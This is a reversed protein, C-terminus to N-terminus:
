LCIVLQEHQRSMKEHGISSMQGSKLLEEARHMEAASGAHEAAMRENLAQIEAQHRAGKGARVRAIREEKLARDQQMLQEM